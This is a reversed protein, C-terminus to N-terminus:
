DIEVGPAPVCNAGRFSNQFGGSAIFFLGRHQNGAIFPLILGFYKMLNVARAIAAFGLSCRGGTEFDYGCFAVAFICVANSSQRGFFFSLYLVTKVSFIM